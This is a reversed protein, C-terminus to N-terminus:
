PPRSPGFALWARAIASLEQLGRQLVIHGPHGDAKRALFGGLRAVWRMADALPPPHDPPHPTEHVFCYLAKWEHEEFVVDCPLDPMQRGLMTLQQVRWAILSLLALVKRIDEASDFQREEIRCGTKLIRHFVEIGWRVAYFQVIQLAEQVDIVELTTVLMWSLPEIGEPPDPEHLYVAYLPVSPLHEAARSKPPRLTVPAFRLEVTATRLKNTKKVPVTMQRTLAVPQAELYPWLYNEDHEVRRDWSARVLVESQFDKALLFLDYVDAERDGINIFVADPHEQQLSETTQLSHIWKYSEKEQIPQTRRSETKGFEHDPRVWVQQDVVGLPVREPTFALTTHVHLGRLNPSSGITGLGKKAPHHTYNLETTDQLCLILSENRIRSRTSERHPAFIKEETVKPNDIFRYTAKTRAWTGMAQPISSQPKASLEQLIRFARKNLRVDGFDISELETRAWAGPESEEVPPATSQGAM